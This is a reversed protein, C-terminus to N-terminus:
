LTELLNVRMKEKLKTEGQCEEEIEKIICFTMGKLLMFSSAIQDQTDEFAVIIVFHKVQPERQNKPLSKRKVKPKPGIDKKEIILIKVKPKEVNKELM